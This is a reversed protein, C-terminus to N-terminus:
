KPPWISRNFRVNISRTRPNGPAIPDDAFPRLARWAIKVLGKGEHASYYDLGASGQVIADVKGDLLAQYEDSTQSFEQVVANHEQLYALPTGGLLTAVRKGPLDEPGNIAGRIEQVTLTTTLQATYFVVYVMGVFMWLVALMRGPWPRPSEDGQTLMTTTAWYMTRLIGPYYKRGSITDDKQAREFIWMLHASAVILALAVGLWTLSTRSFLLALLTRLPTAAATQGTDRVMVQLGVEVIPYSFDFERDRERSYFLGSVAIDANGSRLSDFLGKTDPTMQYSTKVGVRAAIENWLDISFGTLAGGQEMVFPPLVFTVVRVPPDLPQAWAGSILMMVLSVTSALRSIM